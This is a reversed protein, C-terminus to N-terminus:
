WPRIVERAQERAALAAADSAAAFSPEQYDELLTVLADSHELQTMEAVTLSSADIGTRDSVFQRMVHNFDLHLARLDSEGSTYRGYAADIAALHEARMAAYPDGKGRRQEGAKPRTSWYVWVYWLAILALIALGIGWVWWAYQAPPQPDAPVALILINGMEIATETAPM